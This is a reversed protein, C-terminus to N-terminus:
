YLNNEKLNEKRREKGEMVPDMSKRRSQRLTLSKNSEPMRRASVRCDRCGKEVRSTMKPLSGFEPIAPPVWCKEIENFAEALDHPIFPTRCLPCTRQDHDMWRDVCGRHFIHGCNTLRRIEEHDHFEYLCVTCREPPDRGSGHGSGCVSGHKSDEEGVIDSFRMVPLLERILPASVSGFEPGPDPWSISPEVFHTLGILRLLTLIFAWILGLIFVTSRLVNALIDKYCGVMFDAM